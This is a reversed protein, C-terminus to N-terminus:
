TDVKIYNIFKPFIRIFFKIGEDFMTIEKTAAM